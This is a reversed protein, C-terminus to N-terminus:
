ITVNDILRARGFWAAAALLTGPGARAVPELTAGDVAEFYDLRALPERGIAARAQEVLAPAADDGARAHDAAAPLARYLVPAARREEPTLYANRSSLALGDPERVTPCGVIRIPLHLDLTMRRIIALQQADKEGFCAADPSVLTFLKLVVTTVGRFHGPRTRGCLRDQMGEVEVRTRHGPVHIADDAPAFLADVGAARLIAEDRARDRPYAAFDERPGFQLPNVYISVVVRDTGARAREILSTHGRHLAGMTPVLGLTVGARRAAAAFSRMAAATELIEM